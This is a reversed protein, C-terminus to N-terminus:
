LRLTLWYHRKRSISFINEPKINAHMINQTHAYALAQGVRVLTAVAKDFPFPDPTFAMMRHRLSNGSAYASILYPREEDIGAELLPLIFPHRLQSIQDIENQFREQEVNSDLAHFFKIIVKENPDTISQALYLTSATKRALATVLQYAHFIQDM